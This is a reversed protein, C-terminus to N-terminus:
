RFCRNICHEILKEADDRDMDSSLNLLEITRFDMTMAILKVGDDDSVIDIHRATCGFPLLIRDGRVDVGNAFFGSAVYAVLHTDILTM